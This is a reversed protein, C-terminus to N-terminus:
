NLQEVNGSKVWGEAGSSLRVKQWEGDQSDELVTVEQNFDVGGVQASDTNPDQRLILGIPQIVRGSYGEPSPLPSPSVDPSPPPAEPSAVPSVEASAVPSPAPPSPDNPFVPRLPPTSLRALLYRTVGVGTGFLIGVALLLGLIFKSLGSWSM